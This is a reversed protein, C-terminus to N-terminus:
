GTSDNGRCMGGQGGKKTSGTRSGSWPDRGLSSDVIEADEIVLLPAWFAYGFVDMVWAQTGKPAGGVQGLELAKRYQAFLVGLALQTSISPVGSVVGPLLGIALAAVRAAILAQLPRWFPAVNLSYLTGM